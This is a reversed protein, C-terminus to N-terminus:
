SIICKDNRKSKHGKRGGKGSPSRQIAMDDMTVYAIRTRNQKMDAGFIGHVRPQGFYEEERADKRRRANGLDRKKLSNKRPSGADFDLKLNNMADIKDRTINNDSALNTESKTKKQKEKQERRGEVRAKGANLSESSKTKPQKKDERMLITEPPPIESIFKARRQARKHKEVEYDSFYSDENRRRSKKKQRDTRKPIVFSLSKESIMSKEADSYESLMTSDASLDADSTENRTHVKKPPVMDIWIEEGGRQHQRHNPAVRLVPKKGQRNSGFHPLEKRSSTSSSDDRDSEHPSKTSSQQKLVEGIREAAALGYKDLSSRYGTKARVEPQKRLIVPSVIPTSNSSCNSATSRDSVSPFTKNRSQSRPPYNTIVTCKPAIGRSCSASCFIEGNKPLFPKGLLSLGCTFCSFCKESAHWHQSGHAM